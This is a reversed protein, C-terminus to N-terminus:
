ILGVDVAVRVANFLCEKARNDEIPTLKWLEELPIRELDAYESEFAKLVDCRDSALLPISTAAALLGFKGYTKLESCLTQKTFVEEVTINMDRLYFSLHSHYVDIARVFDDRSRCSNGCLLIFYSLDTAPSAVRLLQFDIAVARRESCLFNPCWADGHNFVAHEGRTTVLKMLQGYPDDSAIKKFKEFYISNCFSEDTALVDMDIELARQLYPKYWSCNKEYYYVEPLENAIKTFLLTRRLRLAMSVSHLHALVRLVENREFESPM